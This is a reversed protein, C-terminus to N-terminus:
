WTWLSVFWNAAKKFWGTQSQSTQLETLNLKKLSL